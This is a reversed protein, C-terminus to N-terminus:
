SPIYLLEVGFARKRNNASLTSQTSIYIINFTSEIRCFMSNNNIGKAFCIDFPSKIEKNFQIQILICCCSSLWSQRNICNAIYM